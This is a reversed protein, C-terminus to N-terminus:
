ATNQRRRYHAHMLLQDRRNARLAYIRQHSLIHILSGKLVSM